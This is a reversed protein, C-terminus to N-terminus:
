FAKYSSKKKKRRSRSSWLRVTNTGSPYRGTPSNCNSKSGRQTFIDGQLGTCEELTLQRFFETQVIATNQDLSQTLADLGETHAKIEAQRRNDSDQLERLCADQVSSIDTAVSTTTTSQSATPQHSVSKGTPPVSTGNVVAGLDNLLPVNWASETNNKDFGVLRRQRKPQAPPASVDEGEDDGLGLNRIYETM